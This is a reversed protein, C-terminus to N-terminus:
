LRHRGAARRVAVFSALAVSSSAVGPVLWGISLDQISAVVLLTVGAGAVFGLSDGFDPAIRTAAYLLVVVLPLLLLGISLGTLLSFTFMAGTVTWSAFGLWGASHRPDARAISVATVIVLLPYILIV